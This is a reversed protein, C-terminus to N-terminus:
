GTAPIPRTYLVRGALHVIGALAFAIVATAIGFAQQNAAGVYVKQDLIFALPILLGALTMVVLATSGDWFRTRTSASAPAPV